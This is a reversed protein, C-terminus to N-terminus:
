IICVQSRQLERIVKMALLKDKPTLNDNQGKFIEWGKRRVEEIGDLCRKYYYALDSKALDFVFRQSLVKLATIDRSITSQDVKLEHAIETETM